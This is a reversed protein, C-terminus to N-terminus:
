WTVVAPPLEPQVKAVFLEEDRHGAAYCEQLLRTKSEGLRLRERGRYAVWQGKHAELLTRLDAHFQRRAEAILKQVDTDMPGEQARRAPRVGNAPRRAKRAPRGNSEVWARLGLRHRVVEACLAVKMERPMEHCWSKLTTLADDVTDPGLRAALKARQAMMRRPATRFARALCQRLQALAVEEPRPLPPRRGGPAPPGARRAKEAWFLAEALLWHELDRDAPRGGVEWLRYAIQQVQAHEQPLLAARPPAPRNLLAHASTTQPM